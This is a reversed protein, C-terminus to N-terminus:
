KSSAISSFGKSLSEERSSFERSFQAIPNNARLGLIVKWLYESSGKLLNDTIWDNLKYIEGKLTIM